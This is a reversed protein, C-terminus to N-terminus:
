NFVGGVAFVSFILRITMILLTWGILRRVYDDNLHGLLTAASLELGHGPYCSAFKAGCLM